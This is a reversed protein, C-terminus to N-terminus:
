GTGVVEIPGTNDPVYGDVLDCLHRRLRPEDLSTCAAEITELYEGLVSWELFSERARMIMPHETAVVNHGTLLEEYLKEGPRLGTFEIAIDGVPNERDCVTLGSLRIMRHALDAIRVPEGMDLVFVDGGEAMAGAQLVLQSAEPITMFYRVVDPHTVTVPGGQHIQDRFVPIVSGSSDLVNGFRVMSFCTSGPEDAALAQLVQEAIRKSAGMVNTPNVAKDTSVLVFWAVGAARAARATRLTGFVNNRVGSFANKEVLPVHKYAAAHYVTEIGQDSMLHTLRREELASGLVPVLECDIGDTTALAQLEREVNYLAYESRELLVLRRPGRYIIQRCLESGISGGAGTILVSRGAICRDLLQEDPAVQARGLLDDVEVERLEDVRARGSIIDGLAPVTRVHASLHELSAIVERRRSRAASPLALLIETVGHRQVLADVQDPRYVPLGLIESGQLDRNDDIFAVPCHDGGHELTGALQVGAMGAGYILVPERSRRPQGPEPLYQRAIFRVGGLALLLGGFYLFYTSRPIAELRFLVVISVYVLTSLAAGKVVAQVAQAGMFRVVSRYLGVIELLPVTLLAVAPLLWWAQALAAPWPEGLRLAFAAWLVSPVIIVDASIMIARKVRRSRVTLWRRPANLNAHM